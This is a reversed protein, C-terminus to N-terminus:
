SYKKKWYIAAALEDFYKEPNEQAKTYLV